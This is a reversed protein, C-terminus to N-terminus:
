RSTLGLFANLRIVLGALGGGPFSQIPSTGFNGSTRASIALGLDCTTSLDTVLTITSAEGVFALSQLDGNTGLRAILGDGGGGSYGSGPLPSGFAIDSQGGLWIGQGDWTPSAAGIEDTGAGGLFTLWELGGSANYKSAVLDTNSGPSAHPNLPAGYTASSSAATIISGGAQLAGGGFRQNATNEGQFTHFLYTGDATHKSLLADTGAGSHQVITGTYAAPTLAADGAGLFWLNGGPEVIVNLLRAGTTSGLITNFVAHGNADLKIAGGNAAGGGQHPILNTGAAGQFDSVVQGVAVFGGDNTRAVGEAKEGGPGGHYTHWVITGALSVRAILYDSAGGQYANVPNGFSANGDGAFVIGGDDVAIRQLGTIATGGLYTSWVTNGNADLRILFNNASGPGGVFAIPSGVLEDQTIFGSLVVGGDPMSRLAVTTNNGVTAGIHTHWSTTAPCSGFELFWAAPNCSIDSNACPPRICRNAFVFALMLALTLWVRPFTRHNPGSVVGGYYQM